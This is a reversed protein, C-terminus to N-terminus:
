FRAEYFRGMLPWFRDLIIELTKVENDSLTNAKELKDRIAKTLEIMENYVKSRATEQEQEKEQELKEVRDMVWKIQGRLQQLEKQEMNHRM